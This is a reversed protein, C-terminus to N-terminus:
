KKEDKAASGSSSGLWYQVVAGQAALLGGMVVNALAQSAEPVPYVLVLVTALSCGVIAAISVIIAGYTRITNTMGVAPLSTSDSM